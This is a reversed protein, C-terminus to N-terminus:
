YVPPALGPILMLVGTMVPQQRDVGPIEGRPAEGRPAEGQWIYGSVDDGMLKEVQAKQAGTVLHSQLVALPFLYYNGAQDSLVLANPNDQVPKNTNSMKAAM